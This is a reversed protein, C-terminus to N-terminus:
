ERFELCLNNWNHNSQSCRWPWGKRKGAQEASERGAVAAAAAEDEEEEDAAGAAAVVGAASATWEGEM